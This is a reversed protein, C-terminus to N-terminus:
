EALAVCRVSHGYYRRHNSSPLVAVSRFNLRRANTNGASTSSWYFGYRGASYVTSVDSGPTDVLGGRVGYFPAAMLGKDKEDTTSSYVSNYLTDLTSYMGDKPLNWNAPCISNEYTGSEDVASSDNTAIAATWNYYNGIAGHEGNGSYPNQSFYTSLPTNDDYATTRSGDLYNCGVSWDIDNCKSSSFYIGTMYWKGPDVSHPKTDDLSWKNKNNGFNIQGDPGTLDRSTVITSNAVGPTWYTIGDIQTYGNAVTYPGTAAEGEGSNADFRTLNTTTSDLRAGTINFDLNQTMWCNGDALKSVWYLENDRKDVLQISKVSAGTKDGEDYYVANCIQKSMDQMAYHEGDYLSIGSYAFATEFTSREDNAVPANTVATFNLTAQYYGNPITNDIKAGFVVTERNSGNASSGIFTTEKKVPVFNTAGNLRYGWKNKTADSNAFEDATYSSGNALTEITWYSDGSLPAAKNILSTTPTASNPEYAYMKLTYGFTNSTNVTVGIESQAFKGDANPIINLITNGDITVGLSLDSMVGFPTSNVTTPTLTTAVVNSNVTYRAVGLGAATLLAVVPLAYLLKDTAAKKKNHNIYSQKQM